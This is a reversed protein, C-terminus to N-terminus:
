EKCPSREINCMIRGGVGPVCIAAAQKAPKGHRDRVKGDTGMRGKLTAGDNPSGEHGALMRTKQRYLQRGEARGLSKQIPAKLNFRM